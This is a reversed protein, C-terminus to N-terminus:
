ARVVIFDARRDGAHDRQERHCPRDRGVLGWATLSAPVAAAASFGLTILAAATVNRKVHVHDVLMGGPLQCVLGAITGISLALGIETFDWGQQALWVAVFPGFGTQVAATFFNLGYLGFRGNTM